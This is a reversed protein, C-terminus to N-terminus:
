CWAVAEVAKGEGRVPLLLTSNYYISYVIRRSLLASGQQGAGKVKPGQLSLQCYCYQRVPGVSHRGLCSKECLSRKIFSRWMGM